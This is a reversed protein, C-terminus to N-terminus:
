MQGIVMEYQRIMQRAVETWGYRNEVMARGRLGEDDAFAANEIYPRLGEAIAEPTRKVWRGCRETELVQWPTQQSAVVPVCSALAELVVNGFNETTSPLALVRAEALFTSKADGQLAGRLSFHDELGSAKVQAEVLRAYADDERPGAIHLEVGLGQQRLIGVAQVLEVYGKVPHIRGLAVVRPTVSKQRSAFDVVFVGNPVEIAKAHGFMRALSATESTSTTHFADVQRLLPGFLRLWRKKREPQLALATEELVGRLSLVVPKRALKAAAVGWMSTSCFLGTVHIVDAWVLEAYPTALLSPAFDRDTWSHTYRVPVGEFTTWANTSIPLRQPGDCDTTLVRVEAGQQMLGKTLGLLSQIPGGYRYAPAFSPSIHLVRM